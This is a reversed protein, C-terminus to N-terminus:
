WELDRMNEEEIPLVAPGADWAAPAPSAHPTDSSRCYASGTVPLSLMHIDVHRPQDPAIGDLFHIAVDFTQDIGSEVVAYRKTGVQGFSIASEILTM